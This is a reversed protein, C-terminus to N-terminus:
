KKPDYVGKINKKTKMKLEDLDIVSPSVFYGSPGPPHSFTQTELNTLSQAELSERPKL